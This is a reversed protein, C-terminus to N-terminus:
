YLRDAVLLSSLCICFTYLRLLDSLPSLVLSVSPGLRIPSYFVCVADGCVRGVFIRYIVSFSGTISSSQPIRLVGENGDSGPGSQSPTTAGSLTRDIPWISSFLTSISFQITQFLNQKYTVTHLGFFRGKALSFQKLYFQKYTFISKANFLRCDNFHWLVLGFWVSICFTSFRATM